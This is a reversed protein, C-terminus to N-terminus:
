VPIGTLRHSESYTPLSGGGGGGGSSSCEDGGDQQQQQPPPQQPSSVAGYLASREADSVEMLMGSPTNADLNSVVDVDHHLTSLSPVVNNTSSSSVSFSDKYKAGPVTTTTTENLFDGLSSHVSSSNIISSAPAHMHHHHQMHHHHHHHLRSKDDDGSDEDNFGSDAANNHRVQHHALIGSRQQQPPPAQPNTSTSPSQQTLFDHRITTTTSTPAAGSMMVGGGSGSNRKREHGAKVKLQSPDRLMKDLATVIQSFKPRQNRDKKWCDLMLAHQVQPCDMPAPLRYGTEVANMVDRNSMGWYPREGYSMVEWMVIGFSWVDSASTFKRFTFAEPATWRIPIKGGHRTTYATDTDDELVRSMGFDSVKCILQANVLINRAALDRHVYGMDSLYKMGAAVNRLMGVLQVVTFENDHTRLFNDLSGNEMFETIIMLPRSRTVVGELRIVNPHEFQGMISAEGLFDLKQQTSYGSKLTKIAVDHESKGPLQLRGRCVEGFEGGGIVQEIKVYTADIEKTFDRVARNPDEYTTPDIYTKHNPQYMAGGFVISNGNFFPQKEVEHRPMHSSKKPRSRRGVFVIALVILLIFLLAGGIGIAMLTIKNGEQSSNQGGEGGPLLQEKDVQSALSPTVITMIDSYPGRGASTEARIQLYYTTDENLDTLQIRPEASYNLIKHKQNPDVLSPPSNYRLSIEYGIIHGNSPSPPDWRLGLSTASRDSLVINRVVGPVAQDTTVIVDAYNHLSYGTNSKAVETVDNEAHIRLKYKTHANLRTILVREETLRNQSPHYRVSDPCEVCKGEEACVLCTIKYSIESGVDYFEPQQWNLRVSTQNVKFEAAYPKGPPKSCGSTADHHPARYYGKHCTCEAMGAVEASSYQPCKSCPRNSTKSKYTGKGCALCKKLEKDPEYGAMCQCKGHPMTWNGKADCYLKPLGENEGVDLMDANDVCSGKTEVLSTVEAGTITRSYTALNSVIDDCYEYYVRVYNLAICSGTDQVALYFGRKTLPGIGRTEINQTDRPHLNSGSKRSWRIDAAITDSKIYTDENWPPYTTTGEDSDTEYYFLNFTEKCTAVNEVGDCSRITFQIEIYVRQAGMVEIYNSRLWNDNKNKTVQCVTFVRREVGNEDNITMEEWKSNPSYSWGLDSMAVRTDLLVQEAANIVNGCTIILLCSFHFSGKCWM